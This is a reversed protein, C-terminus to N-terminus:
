RIFDKRPGCIKLFQLQLKPIRARCNKETAKTRLRVIGVSRGWGTPSTRASKKRISLTAHDACRIGVATLRPKRSGSGSSKWELLDETIRVLNPQGRELGVVEWSIQYRRSHCEPGRFRYGPVRSGKVVSATEIFVNFFLLIHTKM